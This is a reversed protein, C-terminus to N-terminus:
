RWRRTFVITDNASLSDHLPSTSPSAECIQLLLSAALTDEDPVKSAQSLKLNLQTLAHRYLSSANRMLTQDNYEAGIQAVSVAEIASRLAPNTEDRYPLTSLFTMHSFGSCSAKDPLYTDFFRSLAQARM